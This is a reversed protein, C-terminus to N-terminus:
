TSSANFSGYLYETNKYHMIIEYVWKIKEDTKIREKTETIQMEIQAHSDYNEAFTRKISSRRQEKTKYKELVFESIFTPAYDSCCLEKEFQRRLM